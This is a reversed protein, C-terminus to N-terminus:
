FGSIKYMSAASALLVGSSTQAVQTATGGVPMTGAAQLPNNLVDEEAGGSMDGLRRITSVLSFVANAAGDDASQHKAITAIMKANQSMLANLGAVATRNVMSQGPNNPDPVILQAQMAFMSRRACEQNIRLERLPDFLHPETMSFHWQLIELTWPTYRIQNERAPKEIATQHIQLLLPLLQQDNLYGRLTREINFVVAYRNIITQQVASRAKKERTTGEASQTRVENYLSEMREACVPCNASGGAPPQQAVALPPRTARQEAAMAVLRAQDIESQTMHEYRQHVVPPQQVATTAAAQEPAVPVAVSDATRRRVPSPLEFDDAASNEHLDTRITGFGLDDGDSSTSSSRVGDGGSNTTGRRSSSRRKQRVRPVPPPMLQEATAAAVGGIPSESSYEVNIAHADIASADRRGALARARVLLDSHIGSM